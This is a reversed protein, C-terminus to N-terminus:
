NVELCFRLICFGLTESTNNMIPEEIQGMEEWVDIEMSERVKFIIQLIDM